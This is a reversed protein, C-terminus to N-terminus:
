RLVGSKTVECVRVTVACFKGQNAGIDPIIAWVGERLTHSLACIIMAKTFTAFVDINVGHKVATNILEDKSWKDLPQSM